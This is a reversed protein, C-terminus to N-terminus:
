CHRITVYRVRNSNKKPPSPSTSKERTKKEKKRVREKYKVKKGKNKERKVGGRRLSELSLANTPGNTLGPGTRYAGKM